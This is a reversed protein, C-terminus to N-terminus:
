VTFLLALSGRETALWNICQAFAKVKLNRGPAPSLELRMTPADVVAFNLAGCPQRQSADLAFSYMHVRDSACRAAHQYTQVLSFYAGTRPSFRQTAGILLTASEIVDVYEFYRKTQTANEDYVVFVLSRVPLNLERLDLTVSKLAFSGTDDFQYNLADVDQCNEVMLLGPRQWAARQEDQDVFVQDALLKAGLAAPGAPAAIGAPLSVLDALAAAEFDLVLASRAMLAALPLFQQTAHHDRCCFFKFPLFVIHERDTGLVEGRGIMADIAAKRGQPLFLRDSLDYWLREQDHIVVDDVSLRVRQMLVYGVADVWRGGAIGLNPLRVELVMDGLMDGRRQVTISTTTGLALPVEQEICEISFPTHRRYVARFFSMQPNIDLVYNQPGLAMLQIATGPSGRADDEQDLGMAAPTLDTRAPGPRHVFAQKSPDRARAPQRYQYAPPPDEFELGKSVAPDPPPPARLVPVPGLRDSTSFYSDNTLQYEQPQPPLLRPPPPVVVARAQTANMM